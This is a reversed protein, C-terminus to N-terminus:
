SGSSKAEAYSINGYWVTTNSAQEGFTNGVEAAMTHPWQGMLNGLIRFSTEKLATKYRESNSSVRQTEDRSWFGPTNTTWLDRSPFEATKVFIMTTMMIMMIIMMMKNWCCTHNTPYTPTDNGQDFWMEEALQTSIFASIRIRILM